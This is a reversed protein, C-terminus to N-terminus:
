THLYMKDCTMGPYLLDPSAGVQYKTGHVAELAKAAQRGVNELEEKDELPVYDYGWPTFIMQSYSHFTLVLKLQDKRELIYAQSLSIEPESAAKPGHYQSSCPNKSTGKGGWKYEWNRNPDIYDGM